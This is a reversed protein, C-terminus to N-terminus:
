KAVVVQQRKYSEIIINRVLQCTDPNSVPTFVMAVACGQISIPNMCSSNM